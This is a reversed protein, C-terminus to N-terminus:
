AFHICYTQNAKDLEGYTDAHKAWKSIFEEKRPKLAAGNWCM